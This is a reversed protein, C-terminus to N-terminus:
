THTKLCLSEINDLGAQFELNGQRLKEPAPIVSIYWWMGSQAKSRHSDPDRQSHYLLSVTSEARDGQGDAELDQLPCPVLPPLHRRLVRLFNVSPNTKRALDASRSLAEAMQSPRLAPSIM